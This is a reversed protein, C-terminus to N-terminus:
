VHTQTGCFARGAGNGPVHKSRSHGGFYRCAGARGPMHCQLGQRRPGAANRPQRPAHAGLGIDLKARACSCWRISALLAVHDLLLALESPLSFIDAAIVECTDLLGPSLLIPLTQSEDTSPQSAHQLHQSDLEQKRHSWFFSQLSPPSSAARSRVLTELCHSTVVAAGLYDHGM